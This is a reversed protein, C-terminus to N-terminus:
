HKILGKLQKFNDAFQFAATRPGETNFPVWNEKVLDMFTDDQLWSKNFKLYSLPNQPGTRLEFFIPFHDSAGGSGVWQRIMYPGEVLQESVLFRDLRKSVRGEGCRLNRWTPKLSIPEIDLLHKEM